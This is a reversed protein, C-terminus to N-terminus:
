NKKLPWYLMYRSDHLQYFPMLELDTLDDPLHLNKLKFRNPSGTAIMLEAPDQSETLSLSPWTEEPYERGKARYGEWQVSDGILNVLDTTDTKAALVLPGHLFAVYSSDSPLYETYTKMPLTIEIKDGKEWQRNLAIYPDESQETEIIEENLKISIGDKALWNPKRIFITFNEDNTKDIEIVSTESSPFETQQTLAIGKEEWNLKSPIFLNVLIDKESHSYILEGYKGHNEMGSGVCCWMCESPQSYNRYHRPRMPTYYVFGGREPNQSALIHNYLAREYYEIYKTDTTQEFLHKSLKLMNYTNCSEPGAIHTLMHDYDDTPNFHEDVSNGGIVVSRNETVTKWFYGAAKGFKPDDTLEAIRQFGVVKPIQTNAHMGTLSDIGQSLPDLILNHSFRKALTLYKEDSTIAYLDAFVENIGGHEAVLIQQIQEDSLNESVSYLYDTLKTLIELGLPKNAIMYADRLGALLKHLNYIPVWKGNLDFNDSTIKGNAIDEWMATSGPTGGIYGTPSADQCRKLENLMYDLRDEIEENDLTVAMQAAATLYHGGIHGDLGTNEWNGYNDKKPELGAEKLYPALLKDVDMALMYALDKEQANSFDSKLLEVEDLKFASVKEPMESSTSTPQCAALIATLSILSLISQYNKIM